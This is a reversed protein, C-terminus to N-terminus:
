AGAGGGGSPPLAGASAPVPAKVPQAKGSGAGLGAEVFEVILRSVSVRRRAAELRLADATTDSFSTTFRQVTADYCVHLVVGFFDCTPRPAGPRQPRGESCRLKGRCAVASGSGALGAAHRHPVQCGGQPM